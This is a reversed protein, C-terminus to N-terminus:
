GFVKTLHIKLRLSLLVILRKPATFLLAMQNISIVSQEPVAGTRKFKTDKIFEFNRLIIM